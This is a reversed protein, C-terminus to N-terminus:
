VKISLTLLTYYITTHCTFYKFVSFIPDTGFNLAFKELTLKYVQVKWEYIKGPAILPKEEWVELLFPHM